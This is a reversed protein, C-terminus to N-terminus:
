VMQVNLRAPNPTASEAVIDFTFDYTTDPDTSPVDQCLYVRQDTLSGTVDKGYGGCQPFNVSKVSNEFGQYFSAGLRYPYVGQPLSPPPEKRWDSGGSNSVRITVSARVGPVLQSPLFALYNSAHDQPNCVTQTSATGSGAFLMVLASPTIARAFASFWPRPCRAM